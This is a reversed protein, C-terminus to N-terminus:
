ISPPSQMLNGEACFLLTENSLIGLEFTAVILRNCTRRMYGSYPWILSPTLQPTRRPQHVGRRKMARWIMGTDAATDADVAGGRARRTRHCAPGGAM